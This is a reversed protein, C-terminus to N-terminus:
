ESRRQLRKSRIRLRLPLLRLIRPLRLRRRFKSSPRPAPPRLSRAHHSLFSGNQSQREHQNSAPENAGASINENAISSPAFDNTRGDRPSSPTANRSPRKTPRQEDNPRPSRRRRHPRRGNLRRQPRRTSGM